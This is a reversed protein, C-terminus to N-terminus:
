GHPRGLAALHGRIGDHGCVTSAPGALTPFFARGAASSSCQGVAPEEIHRSVYQKRTALEFHQRDEETIATGGCAKRDVSIGHPCLRTSQTDQALLINIARRYPEPNTFARVDLTGSGFAIRVDEDWQVNVFCQYSGGIIVGIGHGAAGDTRCIACSNTQNLECIARACWPPGCSRRSRERM